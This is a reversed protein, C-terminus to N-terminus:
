ALYRDLVRKTKTMVFGNLIFTDILFDMEDKFDDEDDDDCILLREARNALGKLVGFLTSQLRYSRAHLYRNTHTRKRYVNTSFKFPTETTPTRTLRMDLFSLSRNEDGTEYTLVICPEISNMEEIAKPLLDMDYSWVALIDDGMRKWLKFKFSSVRQQFHLEWWIMFIGAFPGSLAKGIPCGDLQNM